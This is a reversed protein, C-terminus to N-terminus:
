IEEFTLNQDYAVAPTHVTPDLQTLKAQMHHDVELMTGSEPLLSVFVDGRLGSDRLLINLEGRDAEPLYKLSLMLSRYSVGPETRLTGGDTRTQTSTEAWKLSATTPSYTTQFYRGLFLRSAQMYGDANGSDALDIKAYAGIVPTFWLVSVVYGWADYYTAGLPDVGFILEGLTKPLNATTATSDYLLTGMASTDWIRVRWTATSSLNSRYLVAGSFVQASAWELAIEQAALSTTRALQERYQTQLNTAPLTTVMAPTATLTASDAANTCIIRM